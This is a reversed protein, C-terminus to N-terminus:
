HSPHCLAYIYWGYDPIEDALKDLATLLEDPWDAMRDSSVPKIGASGIHRVSYGSSTLLSRFSDIDYHRLNGVKKDTPSLESLDSLLGMHLGVRRHLSRANPTTAILLGNPKLWAKSRSLLASPDDLHKLMGGMLIYDYLETAQFSEFTSHIFRIDSRGLYKAVGYQLNRAAGEVVTVQCGLALFRDSWQGDMFGLELVKGKRIEQVCREILRDRCRNDIGQQQSTFYYNEAIKDLESLTRVMSMGWNHRHGLKTGFGLDDSIM